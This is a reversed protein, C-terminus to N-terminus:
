WPRPQGPPAGGADEIDPDFEGSYSGTFRQSHILTGKGPYTLRYGPAGPINTAEM